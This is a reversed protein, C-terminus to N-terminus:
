SIRRLPQSDAWDYVYFVAKGHTLAHHLERIAGPSKAFGELCVIGDAKEIAEFDLAMATEYDFEETVTVTGNDEFVWQMQRDLDAPSFVEHGLAVLRDRAADFAPFGHAPQGTMPGVLALRM